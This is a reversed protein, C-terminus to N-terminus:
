HFLRGLLGQKKHDINKMYDGNRVLTEKFESVTNAQELVANYRERSILYIGEINLEQCLHFAYQNIEKLDKFLGIYKRKDKIRKRQFIQRYLKELAEEELKDPRGLFHTIYYASRERQRDTIYSYVAVVNKM